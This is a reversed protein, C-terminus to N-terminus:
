GRRWPSWSWQKYYRADAGFGLKNSVYDMVLIAIFGGILTEIM